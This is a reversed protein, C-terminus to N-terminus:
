QPPLTRGVIAQLPHSPHDLQPGSSPAPTSLSLQLSDWQSSSIVVQHLLSGGGRRQTRRAQRSSVGVGVDVHHLLSTVWLVRPSGRRLLGTIEGPERQLPRTQPPTLTNVRGAPKVPDAHVPHIDCRPM